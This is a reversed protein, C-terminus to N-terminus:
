MAFAAGLAALGTALSQISERRRDRDERAMRENYRMDERELQLRQFARDDAREEARLARDEAYNLNQSELQAAIPAMTATMTNKFDKDKSESARQRQQTVVAGKADTVTAGPGLNFKSPDEGAAVIARNVASQQSKTELAEEDVFPKLILAGLGKGKHVGDADSSITGKYWSDLDFM